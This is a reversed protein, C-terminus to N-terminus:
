FSKNLLNKITDIDNVANIKYQLCAYKAYVNGLTARQDKEEIEEGDLMQALCYAEELKEEAKQADPAERRLCKDAENCLANMNSFVWELGEAYFSTTPNNFKKDSKSIKGMELLGKIILPYRPVNDPFNGSFNECSISSSNRCKPYNKEQVKKNLNVKIVTNFTRSYFM